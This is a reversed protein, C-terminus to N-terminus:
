VFYEADLIDMISNIEETSLDRDYLELRAIISDDDKNEFFKYIVYPQM